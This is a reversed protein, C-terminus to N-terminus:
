AITIDKIYMQHFKGNGWAGSCLRMSKVNYMSVDFCYTKYGYGDDSVLTAYLAGGNNLTGSSNWCYTAPKDTWGKATVYVKKGTFDSNFTVVIGGSVNTQEHYFIEGNYINIPTFFFDYLFIADNATATSKGKQAVGNLAFASIAGVLETNGIKYTTGSAITTANAIDAVDIIIGKGLWLTGVVNGGGTGNGDAGTRTAIAINAQTKLYTTSVIVKGWSNNEIVSGNTYGFKWWVHTITEPYSVYVDFVVYKNDPLEAAEAQLYQMWMDEGGANKTVQIKTTGAQGPAKVTTDYSTTFVDNANEATFHTAGVPSDFFFATNPQEAKLQALVESRVNQSVYNAYVNTFDAIADLNVTAKEGDVWGSFKDAMLTGAVAKTASHSGVMNKTEAVTPAVAQTGDAVWKSEVLESGNYFNVKHSLTASAPISSKDAIGFDNKIEIAVNDFSVDNAVRSMLTDFKVASDVVVPHEEKGLWTKYPSEAGLLTKAFEGTVDEEALVASQAVEYQTRVDSLETYEYGTTTTKCGVAVFEYDYQDATIANNNAVALNSLVANAYYYGDEVYIKSADDIKIEVKKSLEKYKGANATADLEDFFSKPAILVSLKVDDNADNTFIEDYVNQGMQVRFRIGDKKLAISAGDGMAFVDNDVTANVKTTNFSFAFALSLCLVLVSILSVLIKSKLTKMIAKGGILVM